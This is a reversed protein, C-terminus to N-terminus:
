RYKYAFFSVIIGLINVFVQIALWYQNKRTKIDINKKFIFSMEILMFLNATYLILPIFFFRNNPVFYLILSFVIFIFTSVFSIIEKATNFIETNNKM